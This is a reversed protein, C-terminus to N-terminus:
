GSFPPAAQARWDAWAEPTDLDTIARLGPLAVLRPPHRSLLSRAGNDGQLAAFAPLLRAPFVVPHGPTGAHSSARLPPGEPTFAAALQRFDSQRLEPMDAPMVMLGACVQGQAWVAAARLSAAMGEAAQGVPILAVPLGDLAARRAGSQPNEEPPLTICVPGLAAHLAQQALHRLLPAGDVPELLKDRGRMRRAQGAALLALALPM